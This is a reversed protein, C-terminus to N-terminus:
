VHVPNFNLAKVGTGIYEKGERETEM